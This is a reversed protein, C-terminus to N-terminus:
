MGVDLHCSLDPEIGPFEAAECIVALLPSFRWQRLEDLFEIVFTESPVTRFHDPCDLLKCLLLPPPLACSMFGGGDFRHVFDISIWESAHGMSMELDAMAARVEGNAGAATM